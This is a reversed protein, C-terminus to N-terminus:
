LSSRMEEALREVFRQREAATLWALDMSLGEFAPGAVDALEEDMADSLALLLQFEEDQDVPPLLEELEAAAPATTDRVAVWYAAVAAIVVAAATAVWPPLARKPPPSAVPAANEVDENLLSFTQELDHLERRCDTCNELHQRWSAKVPSGELVDVFVEPSLHEEQRESTM